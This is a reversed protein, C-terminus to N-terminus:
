FRTGICQVMQKEWETQSSPSPRSFSDPEVTAEALTWEKLLGWWLIGGAQVAKDEEERGM